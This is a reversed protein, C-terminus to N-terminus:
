RQRRKSRRHRKPPDDDHFPEARRRARFSMAKLEDSLDDDSAYVAILKTPRALRGVFGGVVIANRHPEIKSDLICAPLGAKVIGAALRDALDDARDALIANFLLCGGRTLRRRALAIFEVTCLLPPPLNRCFADIVIADFRRRTGALFARGEAVHCDIEDALGFHKRALTFAVPDIDVLTVRKGLRALMTGLTGGAGGIVLIRRAGTQVVLGFLAHIYSLLSTGARDAHSQVWIGHMYLLSGDDSNRVIRIKGPRKPRRAVTTM